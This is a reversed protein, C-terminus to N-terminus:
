LQDFAQYFFTNLFILGCKFHIQFTKTLKLVTLYQNSQCHELINEAEFVANGFDNNNKQNTDFANRQFISGVVNFLRFERDSSVPYIRGLFFVTWIRYVSSLM